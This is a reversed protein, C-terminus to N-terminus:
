QADDWCTMLHAVLDVIQTNRCDIEPQTFKDDPFKAPLSPNKQWYFKATAVIANWLATKRDDTLASCDGAVFLDLHLGLVNDFDAKTLGDSLSTLPAKRIKRFSMGEPQDTPGDSNTASHMGNVVCKIAPRGEIHIERPLATKVSNVRMKEGFTSENRLTNVFATPIM